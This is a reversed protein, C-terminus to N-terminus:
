LSTWVVHLPSPRKIREISSVLPNSTPITTAMIFIWHLSFALLVEPPPPSPPGIIDSLRPKLGDIKKEADCHVQLYSMEPVAKYVHVSERGDTAAM